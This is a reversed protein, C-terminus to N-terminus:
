HMDRPLLTAQTLTGENAQVEEYTTNESLNNERGRFSYFM